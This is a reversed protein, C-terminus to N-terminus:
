AAAKERNPGILRPDALKRQIEKYEELRALNEPASITAFVFPRGLTTTGIKQFRVRNSSESLRKFYAVIDAWAALKRDDGPTFGLIERPAPIATATPRVASDSVRASVWPLATTFCLAVLLFIFRLKQMLREPSVSLFLSDDVYHIQGQHSIPINPPVLPM